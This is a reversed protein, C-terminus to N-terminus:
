PREYTTYCILRGVPIFAKNSLLINQTMHTPQHKNQLMEIVTLDLLYKTWFLRFLIQQSIYVIIVEKYGKVADHKYIKKMEIHIM